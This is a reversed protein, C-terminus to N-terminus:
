QWEHGQALQKIRKFKMGNTVNSSYYRYCPTATIFFLLKFCSVCNDNYFKLEDAKEEGGQM